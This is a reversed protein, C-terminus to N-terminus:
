RKNLHRHLFMTCLKAWTSVSTHAEALGLGHAGTEYVHVEVPVGNERCALAFLVSNQVPVVPDDATHWLFTPPTAASVHGHLSMMALAEPRPTPGLLRNRSGEHGLTGMDIVAYCLVAADPRASFRGALDDQPCTFRDPHVTLSAALHGGASFGLIGVADPRVRWAAAHWRVLRVARQADNLMAPHCYRPGLRYRLVAAHFGAANLM